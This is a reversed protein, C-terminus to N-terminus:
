GLGGALGRCGAGSKPRITMYSVLESPVQNRQNLIYSLFKM